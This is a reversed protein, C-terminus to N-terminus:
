SAKKRKNFKCLRNNTSGFIIDDVYIQVVLLDSDESKLFLTKDVSGRKFGSDLLYKSLRDYWSRPAQKLGYLAKDLKFVHNQFKSDLFGPPQEVFVEENLYGNLFATKVDMQFLKIGKHAAFAILLRFAELRAVPAFTEDYDIGEQQNYGQVVLRAKNRVIVGTDDLKNRFVWRTGIITRDKPRPVLHWVKNREFQQLEEQMAVIWDPEALAEKINAPEINSLFSYFSCFNNLKRRTKVGDNLSGLITDMPHSGKYKWKKSTPPVDDNSSPQGDGLSHTEIRTGGSSTGPTITSDAIVEAGSSQRSTSTIDENPIVETESRKSQSSTITDDVISETKEKDNSPCGQEDKTGEIEKDEDDLEPPDEKSLRFDPDDLDEEEDKMPGCLDMHVLELPEKTSVMRKPKFSSRVHKCRACSDCLTEQDFRISPLGEVLDWRKLKNLTLANIHALRKHWLCPDDVTVKMCTFSNSPVKNLDLKYVNKVRQGELVVNRTGEIIIRCSDSHFVVKNGKDCLQSISLLNHKLGSVLYVDGIASSSSIGVKGIGIVKGKKNDGFTVFGGHLTRKSLFLNVNGTMHRSCGSDLYWINNEKLVVIKKISLKPITRPQTKTKEIPRRFPQRPPAKTKISETPKPPRKPADAKKKYEFSRDYYWRFYNNREVETDSKDTSSDIDEVVINSTNAYETNKRLDQVRKVCNDQVHGSVGCYSCILYEPLNTYKRKRFDKESPTEKCKSHDRRSYCEYGLGQKLNNDSQETLFDLVQASGEWKDHVKRAHLLLNKLSQIEEDCETHDEVVVFSIDKSNDHLVQIEKELSQVRDIHSKEFILSYKRSEKLQKKLSDIEKEQDLIVVERNTAKTELREIVKKLELTKADNAIVKAQLHKINLKLDSTIADHAIVKSELIKKEANTKDLTTNAESYSQIQAKLTSQEFHKILANKPLKKVQKKLELFSVEEEEDSESDGIFCCVSELSEKDNDDDSGNNSFCLNAVEEEESEDDDETELDGWCSAILVQKFEKKTKDRQAKDKIKDWTPCDKIMHGSEGCKFCGRNAFTNKFESTKKNPTKGKSNSSKTQKSRFVRKNIRRAFLVTEEELDEGEVDDKPRWKKTLSRLVKRAIDESSYTRGLNKLENIITSFRASMSDLSENKEIKFLEYKQILLEIRYKRVASTGEYALELGDWIEKASSCSSFRDFETSVM